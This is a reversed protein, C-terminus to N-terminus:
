HGNDRVFFLVDKPFGALGCRSPHPDHVIEFRNSRTIAVVSHNLGRPSPGSLICIAGDPLEAFCPESERLRFEIAFLGRDKCWDLFGGWWNRGNWGPACFDPVDSLPLELVSAVAAQFCGKPHSQDVPKV